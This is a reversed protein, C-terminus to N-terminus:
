KGTAPKQYKIKLPETPVAHVKDWIAQQYENTPAPAWGEECARKYTTVKWPTVGARPMNYTIGRSVDIGYMEDKVLDLDKPIRIDASVLEADAGMFAAGAILAFARMIEKRTRAALVDEAPCDVDLKGVNVVAWGEEPAVLLAPVGDKVDVVVVGLQGGAAKVEGAIASLEVPQVIRIETMPHLARDIVSVAQAIEAAQVRRQANLFVVKGQATGPKKVMGGSVRMRFADGNNSKRRTAAAPAANTESACLPDGCSVLATLAILVFKM